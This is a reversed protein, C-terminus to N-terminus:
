YTVLRTPVDAAVPASVRFWDFDAHGRAGAGSTSAFLGVKAGVWHSSKAAFSDGIPTFHAGDDSWSFACHAGASITVRLQLAASRAPATHVESEANGENAAVCRRLELRATGERRVLGLWAYDYGFVILGAADGEAAAAFRLTTTVVFEPAPFKQLLLHPASWLSEAAPRPRCFLRLSGPAARLSHFEPSPNAQWQWQRGLAPGAFEDSTAPVTFGDAKRRLAAPKAHVLVPEGTGDNNADDGIVPWGDHRWRMPQLHVVRGYAPMEQFHLFWHDGSPTDVWAGQHPGNIPTGGRELVIRPEYPGEIARSRFVAQFGDAVGGTPAFVYYYEGRRYLKPGEITHWGARKAGDIITHGADTVSRNDAALRHLTVRNNIGSRSRAWGHVLWGTGDADLFPCPDILGKGAKVLVPESWTGRPDAATVVYLGFDPDPYFIWFRGAHFRIAPAWVGQGHRPQAFHAPPVLRPLAHNVLTWNVLDRSHLLPLGPVHGFSSATLWYDEGVRVADPDSYDAHLVPNRYRGDGLDPYWAPAAPAAGGPPVPTPCPLRDTSSPAIM